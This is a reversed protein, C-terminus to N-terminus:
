TISDLKALTDAVNKRLDKDAMIMEQDEPYYFVISTEALARQKERPLSLFTESLILNM